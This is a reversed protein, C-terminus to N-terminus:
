AESLGLVGGMGLLNASIHLVESPTQWHVPRHQQQCSLFFSALLQLAATDVREVKEANVVLEGDAALLQQFQTQLHEVEMISVDSPLEIVRNESM